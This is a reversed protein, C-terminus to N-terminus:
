QYALTFNAVSKFDGPVIVADAGGEGPAKPDGQLYATFLLTNNGALLPTATTASGLKIVNTNGDTMVISAGKASGTIGLSGDVAGAIGSFTTTVTKVTGPICNALKIEFDQAKSKGGKDLTANSVQGLNVTQDMAAPEISCPADIISGTFSVTGHGQDAQAVSAVGFALVAAMMIKNLKM